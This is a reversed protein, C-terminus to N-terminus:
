VPVLASHFGKLPSNSDSPVMSAKNTLYSLDLSRMAFITWMVMFGGNHVQSPEYLKWGNCVFTGVFQSVHQSM